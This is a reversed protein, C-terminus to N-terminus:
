TKVISLSEFGPPLERPLLATGDMACRQEKSPFYKELIVWWFSIEQMRFSIMGIRATGM